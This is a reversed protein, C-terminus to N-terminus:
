PHLSECSVNTRSKTAAHFLTIFRSRKSSTAFRYCATVFRVRFRERGRKRNRTGEVGGPARRKEKRKLLQVTLMSSRDLFNALSCLPRPTHPTVARSPNAAVGEKM